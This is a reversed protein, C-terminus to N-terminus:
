ILGVNLTTQTKKWLSFLIDNRSAGFTAISIHILEFGPAPRNTNYGCKILYGGAQLIRFAQNGLDSIYKPNTYLNSTGYEENSQRDSFPPDFLVIHASNRKLGTMFELADMSHTTYNPYFEPNIDNRVTGWPCKRAFPDIVEVNGLVNKDYVFNNMCYAFLRDYPELQHTDSSSTGNCVFRDIQM